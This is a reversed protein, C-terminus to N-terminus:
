LQGPAQMTKLLSVTGSRDTAWFAAGSEGARTPTLAALDLGRESRLLALLEGPDAPPDQGV